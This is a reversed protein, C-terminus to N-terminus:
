TQSRSDPHRSSRWLTEVRSVWRSVSDADLLRAHPIAHEGVVRIDDLHPGWAEAISPMEAPRGTTSGILVSPVDVSGATGHSLMQECRAYADFMARLDDADVSGDGVGSVNGGLMLRVLEAHDANEDAGTAQRLGQETLAIAEATTLPGPARRPVPYADVVTLSGVVHGRGILEGALAFALHGGYSWGLLDVGDPGALTGAKELSDAYRAVLEGIDAYPPESDVQAPDRLATLGWGDPLHPLLAAYPIVLGFGEPLCVVTRGSGAEAFELILPSTAGVADSVETPGVDIRQAIQRITLGSLLDRVSVRDGGPLEALRSVLRMIVLSNGGADRVSTTVSVSEVGLLETVVACVEREGDTAPPEHHEDAVTIEPLARTDVKGNVTLPIADVGAIAVPIMYDPLRDRLYERLECEDVRRLDDTSVVFAHLQPQGTGGTRAVVAARAVSPHTALADAIEGPEIRYGRIKVQDDGRGLYDLAGSTRWRVLDGTRYMREGPTGWPCAVFRDATKESQGLYGRAMGAGALYLEGVVGPPVPRLGRDLVYARTNAIPRGLTPYPTDALDAGLANITYETPGYLNYSEVGPADRLKQWLAEPVAEGGLSVFVVGVGDAATSKGAPRERDLLGNEVLVDIYSPTADFGDVSTADYHSLLAPPEKRMEEDIIHVHHGTLLWFLQEWSADFSFSTTHAIALRRGEQHAVVRDFIKEQHNVYMNTLGRYGVAVGKPRGTSGSTFIVYALNDPHVRGREGPGLTGGDRTALEGRVADDDLLVSGVEVGDILRTLTSTTVVVTPAAVGIMYEIRDVPHDPDIPVYAGGAAFVAFMSVVMREDRPLLLAVRSEVGVGRSRLLRALRNVQSHLEAFSMRVDGAIVATADPTRAAQEDFLDAVTRTSEDRATDNWDTVVRRTEDPTIVDLGGVTTMRDTAMADLVAVFRDTLTVIEADDFLDGRYACRLHITDGPHAAFSVPYHTSDDLVTDTVRIDAGDPGYRRDTDTAPHNQTIFLTDFLQHLGTDRTIDVLSLYPADVVDIQARHQRTLLTDVDEWPDVVVRVPVTNFLLGVINESGPLEPPRGSVTTGFAVDSSGTLRALTVGWASQLVTSVTTGTSRALSRVRDTLDRSLDRHHDRAASPDADRGVADPRLLSPEAFGSLYRGWASRAGEVDQTALWACYDRYPTPAPLTAGSPDDYLALLEGLVLQYSWGDILIHEFTIALLWSDRDLEIVLFRILPPQAASFPRAREDRLLDVAAPEDAAVQVRMPVPTARPVVQLSRDGTTVFGARLNPHRSLLESVAARLREIDPTGRLTLRAQSAYLDPVGQEAAMRLHFLLGEQLPSVPLVDELPGFLETCTRAQAPPLTVLPTIENSQLANRAGLDVLARLDDAPGVGLEAVTQTMAPLDISGAAGGGVGIATLRIMRRGDTEDGVHATVVLGYRGLEAPADAIEVESDFVQLLIDADPADDFMDRTHVNEHRLLQYVKAQEAPVRVGAVSHYAAGPEDLLVDTALAVPHRHVVRGPTCAIDADRASTELDVVVTDADSSAVRAGLMVALATLVTDATDRGTVPAAAAAARRVVDTAHVPEAQGVAQDETLRFVDADVNDEVFDVWFENDLLEDDAAIDSWRRRVVGPDPLVPMEPRSVDATLDHALTMLMRATTDVMVPDGYRMCLRGATVHGTDDIHCGVGVRSPWPHTVGDSTYRVASFGGAVAMAREAQVPCLPDPTVGNGTADSGGFIIPACALYARRLAWVPVPDGIPLDIEGVNPSLDAGAERDAEAVTDVPDPTATVAAASLRTLEDVPLSEDTAIAVAVAAVTEMIGDITEVDFLERAYDVGVVWTGESTEEVGFVLEFKAADSDPSLGIRDYMEAREVHRLTDGGLDFERPMAGDRYAVMVQFLPSRAGAGAAEPRQDRMADVVLQFPATRHAVASLNDDRVRALAGIVDTDGSLDVTFVVTNVFFGVVGALREDDRLTVPSGFRVKEGAGYARLAIAIVVEALMLPSAAHRNGLDRLASGVDASLRVRRSAVTYGRGPEPPVAHPLSTTPPGGALRDRWFELDKALASRPDDPNGLRDRQRLAFQGYTVPLPTWRPSRGSSRARYAEVLGSVVHPFSGEDTAIHHGSLVLTTRNRGRVLLLRLPIDASLDMPRALFERVAAAAGADDDVDRATVIEHGPLHATDLVQQGLEAGDWRFVTRLAPHHDVLDLLAATLADIDLPGDTDFLGGVRYASRDGSMQETLWLSQQGYSAPSVEGVDILALDDASDAAGVADVSENDTSLRLAAALGAPEPNDFIQQIDTRIGHTALRAVLRNASLSHGGLAFFSDTPLVTEIGLIEAFATCLLLELAGVDGPMAAPPHPPPTPLANRDVKGNANRPLRDLIMVTAPVQHRPLTDIVRTRIESPTPADMPDAVTVYAVLVPEGAVLERAVVVAETITPVATLASEVEGPDIRLGRLSIQHDARGLFVLRGGSWAVLDGTRYLRGGARESWPDAVFRSSTAATDGLYGLALQAGAVYLEGPVGAPVPRLWSDLVHVATNAVPRGISLEADPDALDAYTVDGTVETSGYSNVIAAPALSRVRNLTPEPLEEGSLIWRRLSAPGPDNSRASEREGLLEEAVSPVVTLATASAEDAVARLRAPDAVEQEDAIIVRAGAHVGALLETVGDIFGISSKAIRVDPGDDSWDRRAWTLRNALASHSIAVPKPRGTSGSTFITVATHMVHLPARRQDDTVPRSSYKGVEAPLDDLLVADRDDRLLGREVVPRHTLVVRAAASELLLRIRADPASADIPVCVGGAELVALVAVALDDTRPPIVAVPVDPGVGRDILLRALRAVRTRLETAPVEGARTVLTPRSEGDLVLDIVSGSPVDQYEGRTPADEVAQEDSEALAIGAIPRDWHDDRIAATVFHALHAGLRRLEDGDFRQADADLVLELAGSETLRRGTVTLEAVPGRALSHITAPVDGFRLEDGFPKINIWVGPRRGDGYRAIQEGRLKTHPRVERIADRARTMAAHPTTEPGVALHVPVVNVATMPVTLAASGFRNMVPFGVAIPTESSAATEAAIWGGILATLADSWTASDVAARRALGDGVSAPLDVVHSRVEAAIPADAHRRALAAIDHPAAALARWFEDDARYRPSTRYRQEEDVVDGLAGFSSPPEPEGASRASYVEAARRGILTLGFADAVIHHARLCVIRHDPAVELIAATCCPGTALDIALDSQDRMWAFAADRDDVSVLAIRDIRGLDHTWLEQVVSGAEAAFVASLGEAEALASALSRRLLDGDVTGRLEWAQAVVFTASRGPLQQGFWMAAQAETAPVRRVASLTSSSM